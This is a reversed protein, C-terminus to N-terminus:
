RPWPGNAVSFVGLFGILPLGLLVIGILASWRWITRMGKRLYILAAGAYLLAALVLGILLIPQLSM